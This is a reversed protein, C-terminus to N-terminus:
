CWAGGDAVHTNCKLDSFGPFIEYFSCGAIAVGDRAKWKESKAEEQSKQAIKFAFVSTTKEM